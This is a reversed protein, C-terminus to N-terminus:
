IKSNFLENVSSVIWVDIWVQLWFLQVITNLRGKEGSKWYPIEVFKKRECYTSYFYFSICERFREVDNIYVLTFSNSGAYM